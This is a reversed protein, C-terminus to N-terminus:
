EAEVILSASTISGLGAPCTVQDGLRAVGKLQGSGLRIQAPSTVQANGEADIAISATGAGITLIAGTPLAITLAHAGSDYKVSAGDTFELSLVHAARDYEFAAGDKFGLHWKDASSVPTADASSYIAGLVAGAEDHADMLCVVQEGLDPIWYAKDNQSKPVVIPLWWSRLQDYDAFTVRVRALATDQEQVIGVRFMGPAAERRGEHHVM